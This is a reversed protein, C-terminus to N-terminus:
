KFWINKDFENNYAFYQVDKKQVFYNWAKCLIGQRITGKMHANATKDKIFMQRCKRLMNYQCPKLDTLQEFFDNVFDENYMKQLVLYAYIAATETRTIADCSKYYRGTHSMLSQWFEPMSNYTEIIRQRSRKMQGGHGSSIMVVMNDSLGLYKSITAAINTANPIEMISLVDGPTRVKGSDLTVFSEEPLGRMVITTFPKGCKVCANLRHQGDIMRGLEDFKISEGDLNWKGNAMDDAYTNIAKSYLRRNVVNSKLYEAAMAPTITEITTTIKTEM